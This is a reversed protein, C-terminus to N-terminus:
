YKKNSKKRPIEELINQRWYFLLKRSCLKPPMALFNLLNKDFSILFFVTYFSTLPKPFIYCYILLSWKLVCLLFFLIRAHFSFYRLHITLSCWKYNTSNKKEKYNFVENRPYSSFQVTHQFSGWLSFFYIDCTVLPFCM